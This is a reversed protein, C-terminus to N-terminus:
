KTEPRFPHDPRFDGMITEFTCPCASPSKKEWERENLNMEAGVSRRGKEYAREMLAPLKSKLSPSELLRNRIDTRANRISASWSLPRRAPQYQWKLLHSLLVQVHSEVAHEDSRAMGELKEALEGFDLSSGTAAWRRLRRAQDPLWGYYDEEKHPPKGAVYTNVVQKM